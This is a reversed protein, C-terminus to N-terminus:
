FRYINKSDEICKPHCLLYRKIDDINAKLHTKEENTFFGWSKYFEIELAWAIHSYHRAKKVGKPIIEIITAAPDCFVSYIMGAGHPAVLIDVSSIEGIQDRAHLESMTLITFNLKKLFEILEEENDVINHKADKNRSIYLRKGIVRPKCYEKFTNRLFHYDDELVSDVFNLKAM